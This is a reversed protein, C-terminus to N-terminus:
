LVAFQVTIWELILFFRFPRDWFSPKFCPFCPAPHNCAHTTYHRDEIWVFSFFFASLFSLPRPALTPHSMGVSALRECLIRWASQAIWFSCTVRGM